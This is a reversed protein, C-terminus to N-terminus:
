FAYIKSAQIKGGCNQKKFAHLNNFLKNNNNDNNDNNNNNNKNIIIIIHYHVKYIAIFKSFNLLSNIYHIYVYFCLSCQGINRPLAPVFLPQVSSITLTHEM